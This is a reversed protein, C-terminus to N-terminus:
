KRRNAIENRIANGMWILGNIHISTMGKTFDSPFLEFPNDSEISKFAMEVGFQISPFEMLAEWIQDKGLHINACVWQLKLEYDTDTM